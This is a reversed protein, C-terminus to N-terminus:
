GDAHPDFLVGSRRYAPNVLIGRDDDVLLRDGDICDVGEGSGAPVGEPNHRSRWVQQTVIQVAGAVPIVVLGTVSRVLYLLYILVCLGATTAFVRVIV